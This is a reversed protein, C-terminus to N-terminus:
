VNLANYREQLHGGNERFLDRYLGLNMQTAVSEVQVSIWKNTRLDWGVIAKDTLMWLTNGIIQEALFYSDNLMPIAVQAMTMNRVDLVILGRDPYPGYESSLTTCIYLMDGDHELLGGSCDSLLSDRFVGLRKTTTDFMGIGGVGTSGEGDYFDILFWIDKGIKCSEGILGGMEYDLQVSGRWKQYTIYSPSPFGSKNDPASIMSKKWDSTMYTPDEESYVKTARPIDVARDWKSSDLLFMGVAEQDVSFLIGEHTGNDDYTVRGINMAYLDRALRSIYTTFQGNADYIVVVLNRNWIGAFYIKDHHATMFTLKPYKDSYEAERGAYVLSTGLLILMLITSKKMAVEM